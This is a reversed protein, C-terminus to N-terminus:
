VGPRKIWTGAHPAGDVLWVQNTALDMVVGALTFSDAEGTRSICYPLGDRSALIKRLRAPPDPVKAALDRAGALAQKLRNLSSPGEKGRTTLSLAPTIFHNTHAVMAGDPLRVGNLHGVASPTLELSVASPAGKNAHQALTFCASACRPLSFMQLVAQSFTESQLVVRLLCHVPIGVKGEPDDSPHALFNLCVGLRHENLGIKAVMGAETFTTLRPGSNPKLRLLIQNGKLKPTWDWTQGLATRWAGSHKTRHFLAAATCGPNAKSKKTKKKRRGVVLLDTRANVALIENVSRGSGRAIGKIEELLDPTHTGLVPAFRAAELLLEKPRLGTATALWGVYFDVNRKIAAAAAKGHTEGMAGPSGSARVEPFALRIKARGDAKGALLTSAGLAAAGGLLQRRNLLRHDTM